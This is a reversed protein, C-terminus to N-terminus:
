FGNHINQFYNTKYNQQKKVKVKKLKGVDYQVDWDSKKPVIKQKFVTNSKVFNIQQKLKDSDVETESDEWREITDTGYLEKLKWSKIKIDENTVQTSPEYFQKVQTDIHPKPNQIAKSTPTIHKVKRTLKIQKLLQKLKNLRRKIPKFKNSIPKIYIIPGEDQKDCATEKVQPIILISTFKESSGSGKELQKQLEEVKEEKKIDLTDFPSVKPNTFNDSTSTDLSSLIEEPTKRIDSVMVPSTKVVKKDLVREYFLLYPTQQLVEKESVRCVHSDNMCYWLDNSSKVYCYYHGSNISFGDHVLVSYLKYRYQESGKQDYLFKNLYNIEPEYKVYKKIKRQFNDFRKLNIVLTRPVLFNVFLKCNEFSFKKVSDNKTKCFECFYKNNGNLSEPKCFTMFSRELSDANYIDLSLDLYNDIKKSSKKCKLCTVSSVMKGGFLKQILNDGQHDTTKIFSKTSTLKFQKSSKEM